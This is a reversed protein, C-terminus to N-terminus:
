HTCSKGRKGKDLANTGSPSQHCSVPQPIPAAAGMKIEMKNDALRKQSLPLPPKGPVRMICERERQKGSPLCASAGKEKFVQLITDM